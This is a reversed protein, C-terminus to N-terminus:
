PIDSASLSCEIPEGAGRMFTGTVPDIFQSLSGNNIAHQGNGGDGPAVGHVDTSVNGVGSRPQQVFGTTAFGGNIDAATASRSHMGMSGGNMTTSDYNPSDYQALGTAVQGWCQNLPAAPTTSQAYASGACGLAICLGVYPLIRSKIMM